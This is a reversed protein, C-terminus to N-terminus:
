FKDRQQDGKGSTTLDAVQFDRSPFFISLPTWQCASSLTTFTAISGPFGLLQNQLSCQYSLHLSTLPLVKVDTCYFFTSAFLNITDCGHILFADYLSCMPFDWRLWGCRL